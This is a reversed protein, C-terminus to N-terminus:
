LTEVITLLATALEKAGAKSFTAGDKPGGRPGYLQVYVIPMGAEPHPIQKYVGGEYKHTIATESIKGASIEIHHIYNSNRLATKVSIM